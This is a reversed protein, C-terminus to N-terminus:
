RLTMEGSVCVRVCVCARVYKFLLIFSASNSHMSVLSLGRQKFLGPNAQGQRGCLSLGSCVRQNASSISGTFLLFTAWKDGCVTVAHGFTPCVHQTHVSM